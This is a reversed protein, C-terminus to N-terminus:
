SLCKRIYHMPMLCRQLVDDILILIYEQDRNFGDILHNRTELERECAQSGLTMEQNEVHLEYLKILEYGILLGMASISGVLLRFLYRDRPNIARRTVAPGTVAPGAVAAVAPGAVAPGAVPPLVVRYTEDGHTIYQIDQRCIPCSTNGRNFWTDLCGKCYAHNCNTLCRDVLEGTLCVSCQEGEM